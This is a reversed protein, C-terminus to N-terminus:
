SGESRTPQAAALARAFSPAALLPGNLLGPMGLAAFVAGGTLRWTNSVLFLSFAPDFSSRVGTHLFDVGAFLSATHCQHLRRM